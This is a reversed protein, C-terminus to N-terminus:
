TRAKHMLSKHNIKSESPCFRPIFGLCTTGASLDRTTAIWRAPPDLSMRNLRGGMWALSDDWCAFQLQGSPDDVGCPTLRSANMTTPTIRSSLSALTSPGACRRACCLCRFLLACLARRPSNDPTSPVLFGHRAGAECNRRIHDGDDSHPLRQIKSMWWLSPRESGFEKM